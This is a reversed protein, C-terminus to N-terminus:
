NWVSIDVGFERELHLNEQAYKDKLLLLDSDEIQQNYVGPNLVKSELDFSCDDLDIHKAAQMVVGRPNSFFEESTAVFMNEKPFFNVWQLIQQCYLGRLFYSRLMVKEIDKDNLSLVQHYNEALDGEARLAETFDLIELGLRRNHFYHSVAREVPNRLLILIKMGPYHKAMMRAANPHFLYAPTAEGTIASESKRQPFHAKYWDLSKGSGVSDYYHIEKKTASLMNPHQCLAGYLSTTGCKQAGIVCFSPEIRDAPFSAKLHHWGSDIKDAMPKIVNRAQQGVYRKTLQRAHNRM